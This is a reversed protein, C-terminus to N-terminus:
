KLPSHDYAQTNIEESSINSSIHQTPAQSSLPSREYRIHTQPTLATTEDKDGIIFGHESQSEDPLPTVAKGSNETWTWSGEEDFTVDRSLTLKKSIPDFIRYGKECTAYGVFVRKVSMPKPKHRLENSVHVYCLSGFVKLHAIGPKRGNYAEFPTVNNLAKTPCRNLIYMAIHVVEAWLFYPIEREHLMSKSIEVITKNKKEVVGNQQPTYAMTLQRQIGHDECFQAFESSLFEGGRDSRLCKVKQGSQLETMSKFKKFCNFAEFKNRLFYVWIMRTFDDIILMLYKNGAVSETRMPGCLDIHVLELSITARQAQTKPFVNIHQKGFQCGECVGNQEEVQPLGHVMDKDRLQKLGRFHLHGLRKHWTWTCHTISAKMLLQNEALFSLPYCMNKTMPVKIILCNMSSSDFVKCMGDGFVLFYGHEDMQGFSLLNERLGPLYMVERIYKRGKTTDIVLSGISAMNVLAGIPMQVKWGCKDKCQPKVAEQGTPQSSNCTQAPNNWQPKGKLEWPKGKPNWNKQSKSPGSQAANKNQGKPSVTFSAFAKKTTDVNHLEFLKEQSKLIVIVEQLEVIELRKTNEIVLCISDYIKSLSILVKQVLRENSLMAGYTKMQNILYNLRTLYAFLSENDHM